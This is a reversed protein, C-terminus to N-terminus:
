PTTGWVLPDPQARRPRFSFFSLVLYSVHFAERVGAAGGEGKERDRQSGEEVALSGIAEARTYASNGALGM